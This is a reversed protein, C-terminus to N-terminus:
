PVKKALFYNNFHPDSKLSTSPAKPVLGPPILYGLHNKNMQAKTYGWSAMFGSYETDEEMINMTKAHGDLWSTNQKGAHRGHNSPLGTETWNSFDRTTYLGPTLSYGYDTIEGQALYRALDGTFASSAPQQIDSMTGNWLHAGISLIGIIRPSNGYGSNDNILDIAAPCGTLEFGKLYQDFIGKQLSMTGTSFTYLTAYTLFESQYFGLGDPTIYNTGQAFYDDYDQMYLLNALALQKHNSLCTTKKAAEKAQAFVPFLIAALIAITAIVVLLEILTFAKMRSPSPTHYSKYNPM